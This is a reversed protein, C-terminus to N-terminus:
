GAQPCSAPVPPRCERRSARGAREDRWATRGANEVDDVGGTELIRRRGRQLATHACLSFDGNSSASRIKKRISARVPMRGSSRVKASITLREPLGTTSTALLASARPASPPISSLQSSPGQRAQARRRRAHGPGARDGRHSRPQARRPAPALRPPPRPHPRWYRFGSGALVDGIGVGVLGFGVVVRLRHADRTTPRGFAPLDVSILARIPSSRRSVPGSAPM